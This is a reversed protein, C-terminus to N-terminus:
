PTLSDQARNPPTRAKQEKWKECGQERTRESKGGQEKKNEKRQEKKMRGQDEKWKEWAGPDKSRAGPDSNEHEKSRKYKQGQEKSRETESPMSRAGPNGRVSGWNHAVVYETSWTRNILFNDYSAVKVWVEIFCLFLIHSQRVLTYHNEWGINQGNQWFM